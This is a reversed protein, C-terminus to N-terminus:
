PNNQLDREIPEAIRHRALLADHLVDGSGLLISLLDLDIGVQQNTREM